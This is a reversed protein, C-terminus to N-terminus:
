GEEVIRRAPRGVSLALGLVVLVLGIWAAASLHDGLFLASLIAVIIPTSAGALASTGVGLTRVAIGYCAVSVIASGIGQTAIFFALEHPPAAVLHPLRPAALALAVVASPAASLLILTPASLRAEGQAITYAAWLTASGLLALIGLGGGPTGLALIAIGLAILALAVAARPAPRRRRTVLMMLAVLVPAAGANVISVHTASSHGAGLATLLQFPLGSCVAMLIMRFPRQTRIERWASRWWPVLLIVATVYRLVAVELSSLSSFAILRASLAFGAWAILTITIAVRGAARSM